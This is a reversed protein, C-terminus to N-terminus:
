YQMVKKFHWKNKYITSIFLLAFMCSEKLVINNNYVLYFQLMLVFVYAFDLANDSFTRTYSKGIDM